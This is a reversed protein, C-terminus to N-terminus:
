SAVCLTYFWHRKVPSAVSATLIQAKFSFLPVFHCRVLLVDSYLRFCGRFFVFWNVLVTYVLLYCFFSIVLDIAISTAPEFLVSLKILCSFWTSHFTSWLKCHTYFYLRRTTSESVTCNFNIVLSIIFLNM